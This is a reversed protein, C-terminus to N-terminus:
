WVGRVQVTGLGLGAQVAPQEKKPATFWLAAGGALGVAGIVMGITAINGASHADNGATVAADTRCTGGVCAKDADSKDGMAKVAFITGVALGAVGVGGSVLALIKQTGMGSSGEDTTHAETSPQAVSGGSDTGPTAVTAEELKPVEIEASTGEGKVQAVGKWGQHGPARAVIAHDGEDAPIAVGWQAPGVANGDRLVELGSVRAEPAVRIV